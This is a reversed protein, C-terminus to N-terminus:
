SNQVQDDCPPEANGAELCGVVNGLRHPGSGGFVDAGEDVPKGLVDVFVFRFVRFFRFDALLEDIWEPSKEAPIDAVGLLNSRGFGLDNDFLVDLGGFGGAKAIM